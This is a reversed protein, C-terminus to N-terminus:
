CEEGSSIRLVVRLILRNRTKQRVSGLRGGYLAENTRPITPAEDCEEQEERNVPGPESRSGSRAPGRSLRNNM